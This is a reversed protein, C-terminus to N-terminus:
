HSRLTTLGTIETERVEVPTEPSMSSNPYETVRLEYGYVLQTDSLGSCVSDHHNRHARFSGAGLILSKYFFLPCCVVALIAKWRFNVWGFSNGAFPSM